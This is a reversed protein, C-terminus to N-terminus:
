LVPIWDRTGYNANINITIIIIEYENLIISAITHAFLYFCFDASQRKFNSIFNWSVFRNLIKPTFSSLSKLTMCNFVVKTCSQEINGSMWVFDIYNAGSSGYCEWRADCRKESTTTFKKKNAFYISKERWENYNARSHLRSDRNM